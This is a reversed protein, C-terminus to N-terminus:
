SLDSTGETNPNKKPMKKVPFYTIKRRLPKRRRALTLRKELSTQVITRKGGARLAKQTLAVLREKTTMTILM